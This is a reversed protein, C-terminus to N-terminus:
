ITIISVTSNLTLIQSVIDKTHIGTYVIVTINNKNILEDYSRICIDTGSMYKGHKSKDNDLFFKILDKYGISILYSYLIYGYYGAPAIWIDNIINLSIANLRIECDSFHNYVANNHSFINSTSTYPIEKVREFIYFLSHNKFETTKICRFSIDNFLKNIHSNNYFFTHEINIVYLHNNQIMYELNPISMIIYNVPSNKINQLFIKPDHLHEFVHSLILCDQSFLYNECHGIEVNIDSLPQEIIDLVKYNLLPYDKVIKKALICQAGGIEICTNIDLLIDKFFSYFINHHDQWIPTNFTENHSNQYLISPPILLMLQISCCNNCYGVPFSIKTSDNSPTNTPSYSLVHDKYESIQSLIYDCITCKNRKIM